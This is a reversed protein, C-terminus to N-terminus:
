GPCRLRSRALQGGTRRADRRRRSRRRLAGPPRGARILRRHRRALRQRPDARELLRPRLQERGAQALVTRHADAVGHRQHAPRTPRSVLSVPHSVSVPSNQSLCSSFLKPRAEEFASIRSLAESASVAPENTSAPWWTRKTAAGPAPTVCSPRATLESSRAESAWPSGVTRALPENRKKTM